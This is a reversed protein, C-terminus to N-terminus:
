YQGQRQKLLVGKYICPQHIVQKKSINTKACYVLGGLTCDSWQLHKEKELDDDNSKLKIIRRSKNKSINVHEM